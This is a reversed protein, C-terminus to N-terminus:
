YHSIYKERLFTHGHSLVFVECVSWSVMSGRSGSPHNDSCCIIYKNIQNNMQLAFNQNTLSNGHANHLSYRDIDNHERYSHM